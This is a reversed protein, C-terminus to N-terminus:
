EWRCVLVSQLDQDLLMGMLPVMLKTDLHYVTKPELMWDLGMGQVMMLEMRHVM